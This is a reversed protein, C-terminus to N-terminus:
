KCGCGDGAMPLEKGTEEEVAPLPCHIGTVSAGPAAAEAGEKLSFGRAQLLAAVESPEPLGGCKGSGTCLPDNNLRIDFVGDHGEALTVKLGFLQEIEAALGAAM